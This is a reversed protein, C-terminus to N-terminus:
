DDESAVTLADWGLSGELEEVAATIRSRADALEEDTPQEEDGSAVMSHYTWGRRSDPKFVLSVEHTNGFRNEREVRALAQQYWGSDGPPHWVTLLTENTARFGHKGERM